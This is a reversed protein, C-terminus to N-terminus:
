IMSPGNEDKLALASTTGTSSRIDMLLDLVYGFFALTAAGVVTSLVIGAFAAASVTTGRDVAFTAVLGGALTLLALGKFVTAVIEAGRTSEVAYRGLGFIRLLKGAAGMSKGYAKRRVVRKAYAGPSRSAASLNNTMRAARYMQSVFSRRRVM